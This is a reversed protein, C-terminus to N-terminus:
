QITKAVKNKRNNLLRIGIKIGVSTLNVKDSATIMSNYSEGELYSSINGESVISNLGYNIYGGMYLDLNDSMKHLWGMEAFLSFSTNLTINGSPRESETSFGHQPMDTLEVNWQKYYGSTTITGSTVKYSSSVPISIIAGAFGLIGNKGNFWRQHQVGVPVEFFISTQKEEWNNFYTRLEFSDGEGDVAAMKNMFNLTGKAQSTQLGLGASVGWNPNFFYSYGLNLTGGVGGKSSGGPLSYKLNHSGCGTNIYFYQIRDQASSAVALILGFAIFYKKM